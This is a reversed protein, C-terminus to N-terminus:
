AASADTRSFIDKHASRMFFYTLIGIACTVFGGIKMNMAATGSGFLRSLLPVVYGCLFVGSGECCQMLSMATTLNKGKLGLGLYTQLASIGIM